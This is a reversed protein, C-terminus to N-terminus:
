SPCLVGHQGAPCLIRWRARGRGLTKKLYSSSWTPLVQFCPVGEPEGSDEVSSRATEDQSVSWGAHLCVSGSVAM